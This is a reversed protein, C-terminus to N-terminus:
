DDFRVRKTSTTTTTTLTITTIKSTITTLHMRADRYSPKDMLEDM